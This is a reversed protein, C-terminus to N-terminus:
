FKHFEGSVLQLGNASAIIEPLGHRSCIERLVTITATATNSSMNVTEQYNRYADAVNLYTRRLVLGDLDIQLRSNAQLIAGHTCLQILQIQELWRALIVSDYQM